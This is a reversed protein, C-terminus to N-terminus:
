HVKKKKITETIFSREHTELGYIWITICGVIFSVIITLIFRLPAQIYYLIILCTIVMSLLPIVTRGLAHIAFHRISLGATYKIFPIRCIACICEFLVFVIMVNNVNGNLYLCLWAVPLTLIKITNIFLSYNRIKGIAQNITGLGITAQDCLAAILTFQCITVAYDPITGLWFSLIARMEFIIPVVVLALLLFSFKCLSEGLALTRQRNGNGEAKSIQPSMANVVAQAIFQISGYIQQAIGYSSNIITGFFQNLIIAIGQTRGIICGLSYITWSAFGTVQKISHLNVHSIQPLFVCEKYKIIARISLAFYNFLLIAIIIWAYVILRDYSIHLLWLATLLKVIGDIVDVVSIYVINEHAIFLARYPATLFSIFISLIVIYYVEKAVPIREPQIILVGNFLFPTIAFLGICLCIGIVIHLFLSSSFIDALENSDGKGYYFSLHRQTTVVMANTLFALMAVVGAILSYIGFDSTGLAQLVL